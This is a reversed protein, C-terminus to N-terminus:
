SSTSRLNCSFDSIAISIATKGNLPLGSVMVVLWTKLTVADDERAGRRSSATIVTKEIDNHIPDSNHSSSYAHEHHEAGIHKIDQM